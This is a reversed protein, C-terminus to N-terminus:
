KPVNFSQQTECFSLSTVNFRQSERNKLFLQFNSHIQLITEFRIEYVKYFTRIGPLNLM